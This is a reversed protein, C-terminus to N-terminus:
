CAEKIDYGSIPVKKAIIAACSQAAAVRTKVKLYHLCRAQAVRKQFNQRAICLIITVSHALADASFKGPPPCRFLLGFFLLFYRFIASNIRKWPLPAVPFFSRFLFIAFFCQFIAFFVSFYRTHFDPPSPPM